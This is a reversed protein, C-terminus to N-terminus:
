ISNGFIQVDGHTHPFPRFFPLCAPLLASLSPSELNGHQESDEFLITIYFARPLFLIIKQYHIPNRLAAFGVSVATRNGAQSLAPRVDLRGTSSTELQCLGLRQLWFALHLSFRSHLLLPALEPRVISFSSPLFLLNGSLVELVDMSAKGNRWSTNSPTSM